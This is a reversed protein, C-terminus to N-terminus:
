FLSDQEMGAPLDIEKPKGPMVRVKAWRGMSGDGNQVTDGERKEQKANSARRLRVNDRHVKEWRDEGNEKWKVLIFPWHAAPDKMVTVSLQRHCSQSAQKTQPYLFVIRGVELDTPNNIVM